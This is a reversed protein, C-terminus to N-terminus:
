RAKYKSTLLISGGIISPLVLNIIWLLFSAVLIQPEAIGITSFIFISVSERIGIKGLFPSPIISTILYVITVGIWIIVFNVENGQSAILWTFQLTFIVYRLFSLVIVSLRTRDKILPLTELVEGVKQHRIVKEILRGFPEPKIYILISGVILLGALTLVLGSHKLHFDQNTGGLYFLLLGISGFILTAIFQSFNAYVTLLSGKIRNDPQLYYVRGIFNGIRNPTFIGISLGSLVGSVAQKFSIKELPAVIQKWKVSELCWNVMM